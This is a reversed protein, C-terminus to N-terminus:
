VESKVVNIVQEISISETCVKEKQPCKDKLWCPACEILKTATIPITNKYKAIDVPHFGSFVVISKIGFSSSVHNILGENSLVLKSNRLVLFLERLTTKGTLDIVGSLKEDSEMGVQVWNLDELKTIVSQYKSFGWEKNPTYDMRGQPQVVCYNPPLNFKKEFNKVEVDTFFIENPYFNNNKLIDVQYLNTQILHEKKLTRRMHNEFNEYSSKFSFLYINARDLYQLTKFLILKIGKPIKKYDVNLVVNPNNYFIEPYMSIVIAKLDNEKKLKSIASTMCVQEGIAGGLRYIIYLKNKELIFKALKRLLTKM